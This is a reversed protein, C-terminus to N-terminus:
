FASEGVLHDCSREKRGGINMSEIIRTLAQKTVSLECVGNTRAGESQLHVFGGPAYCDLFTLETLNLQDRITRIISKWNGPATLHIQDLILTQLSERHALLLTAIQEESCRMLGLDLVCLKDLRLHESIIALQEPDKCDTHLRLERLEPFHQVFNKVPFRWDELTNEDPRLEICLSRVDVLHTRVQDLCTEPLNLMSPCPLSVEFHELPLRSSIAAALVLRFTRKADGEGSLDALDSYVYAGTRRELSAAGWPGGLDDNVVSISRCSPLNQLAQTLFIADLGSDKLYRIDESERFFESMEIVGIRDEIHDWSPEEMLRDPSIQLERVAPGFTAHKSIEILNELSSRELMHTRTHFFCDLFADFSNQNMSRSVLRVNLLDDSCLEGIIMAILEASLSTLTLM